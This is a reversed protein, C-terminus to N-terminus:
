KELTQKSHMTHSAAGDSERTAHPAAGCGDMSISGPPHFNFWPSWMRQSTLQLLLRAFKWVVPPSIIDSPPERKARVISAPSNTKNSRAVSSEPLCTVRHFVFVGETPPFKVKFM